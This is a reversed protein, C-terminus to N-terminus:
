ITVNANFGIVGLSLSRINTVNHVGAVVENYTDLQSFYLKGVAYLMEGMYEDTYVNGETM